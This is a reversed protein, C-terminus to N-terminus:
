PPARFTRRYDRPPVGRHQVFQDRLAAGSTYGVHHAIHEISLDTTELLEEAQNLRQSTLWAHPSTGTTQRFRRLFTRRSGFPPAHEGDGGNTAYRTAAEVILPRHRAPISVAPEASRGSRNDVGVDGRQHGWEHRGLPAV